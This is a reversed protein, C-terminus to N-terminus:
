NAPENEPWSGGDPAKKKRSGAKATTKKRKLTRPKPHVGYVLLKESKTGFISVLGAALRSRLVAGTDVTQNRQQMLVRQESRLVHLRREIEEAKALQAELEVHLPVLTPEKALLPRLNEVMTRWSHVTERFTKRAM